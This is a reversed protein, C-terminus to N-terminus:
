VHTAEEQAPKQLAKDPLGAMKFLRAVAKSVQQSKLTPTVGRAVFVIDYKGINYDLHETIAARMVRRARNRQVAKGIKKTATLGVRTKGSKKKLVYMVLQPTVYSKGRTYVRSFENNRCIPRYRM